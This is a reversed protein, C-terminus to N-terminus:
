SVVQSEAASLETLGSDSFSVLIPDKNTGGVWEEATLAPVGSPCPPYIDDQFM